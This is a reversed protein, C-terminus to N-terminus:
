GRAGGTPSPLPFPWACVPFPFPTRSLIAIPTDRCVFPLALPDREYVHTYGLCLKEALQEEMEQVITKVYVLNGSVLAPTGALLQQALLQHMQIGVGSRLEVLVARFKVGELEAPVPAGKAMPAMLIVSGATATTQGEEVTTEGTPTTRLTYYNGVHTITPVPLPKKLRQRVGEYCSESWVRSKLVNELDPWPKATTWKWTGVLVKIDDRHYLCRELPGM